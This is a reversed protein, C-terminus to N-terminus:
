AAVEEAKPWSYHIGRRELRIGLVTYRCILEKVWAAPRGTLFADRPSDDPNVFQIIGDNRGLSICQIAFGMHFPESTAGALLDALYAGMPLALACSMRRGPVLGADGAAYISPDSTRLYADLVLQGSASVALGAERAIPSLSFSACWVVMDAAVMRGSELVVGGEEARAVRTREFTTVSHADFWRRLAHLARPSLGSGITGADIMSVAVGPHREAVEAALEIGTLGGGVVVMSRATRLRERIALPQGLTLAHPPAASVSGLAYVLRDYAIRGASTVLAKGVRDIATVQAKVVEVPLGRFLVRYPIPAVDDGAAVQHLRIREYMGERADVLTVPIGRRALRAAAIAGGYGGGAIVIKETM